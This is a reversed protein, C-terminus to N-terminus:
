FPYGVGFHLAYNGRTLWDAPANWRSGAAQAPDFLQLGGDVRVLIFDLNVRLGLGWDLAISQALNDINFRADPDTGNIEWINGADAFLAGEIKWFIPFRYEINAELKMDGSQSPIVFSTNLAANGAGLARAQWGRMSNAGGSYFQKEFPLSTSNGYAHGAGALLRVAVAHRDSYGFRFTRGLQVEARVYQSYPIEWITRHGYSDTPMLPNFLSVVNGSVDFSLRSYWNSTGYYLIGGVGLDFHDSYANLMFRNSMISSRFADDMDFLRVINAQFPQFQYHFHRGLSGTYGFSTSIISRRYEPRNQYSFSASIDTRPLNTGKFIRNPLGIFKPFRISGSVSFEESRVNDNPKFQFNGKLGINLLEGGHFINKHYYNFQPSLGILGTSNVSAEMSTKFGQLRSNQLSINCDVRDGSAPQMAINVGSLMSVSSLRAYTTNVKREDYMDGPVLINLNELVSPRLKLSAPHNILVRGIQFKHHEQANAPSDGLAYDRISLTLRATGNSALTDAEFAYFGKHFGYYGINRFYQSGRISEAELAAESLYQGPKISLNGLDNGFDERFTGYEPLNFDIASITYRHGLNVEYTVYVKRGKVNIHTDVTSGYYGIYQLHSLINDVSENVQVPDYVVPAVGFRRIFRGFRTTGQGGWGYISLLPNYGLIGANPKQRLYPSLESSNFSGGNVVVSNKVLRYEGDRLSRTTSCSLTFLLLFASLIFFRQKM